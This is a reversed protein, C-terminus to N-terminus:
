IFSPSYPFLFYNHFYCLLKFKFWPLKLSFSIKQFKILISNYGYLIVWFFFFNIFYISIFLQSNFYASIIFSLCSSIFSDLIHHLLLAVFTLTNQSLEQFYNSSCLAWEWTQRPLCWVVEFNKIVHFLICPFYFKLLTGLM